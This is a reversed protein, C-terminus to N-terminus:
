RYFGICRNKGLGNNRENYNEISIEKAVIMM